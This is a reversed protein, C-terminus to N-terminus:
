PIEMVLLPWSLRLSLGLSEHESVVQTVNVDSIAGQPCEKIGNGFYDHTGYTGSKLEPLTSNM